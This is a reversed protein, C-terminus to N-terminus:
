MPMRLVEKINGDKCLGSVLCNYTVTNLSLGKLSMEELIVEIEEWRGVQRASGLRGAKCLGNIIISYTYFDPCCGNRIMNDYLYKAEEFRGQLFVGYTLANPKCGRLQMRNILKGADHMRGFKCLGHIADNFTDVDVSCGIVLMEELRKLAEKVRNHKCLAHILTQYVIADPVCGHKTMGLLLSYASEVANMLCLAKLVISFSFTTLRVGGHLMKYFLNAAMRHCGAGVLIGLAVNYSKFTPECGVVARMEDLVRVANGPFGSCGYCKMIVIFLCDRLVIGEDRSKRLLLEIMKFERAEGLKRVLVFYVDFSHSYGKQAGAWNFIDLCTSVDLPLELFRSVQRPTIGVLSERLEALDFPKLLRVWENDPSSKQDDLSSEKSLFSISHLYKRLSRLKIVSRTALHLLDLASSITVTKKINQSVILVTETILQWNM